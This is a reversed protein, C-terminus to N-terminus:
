AKDEVLLKPGDDKLFATIARNLAQAVTMNKKAALDSIQKYTAMPITILVMDVFPQLGTTDLDEAAEVAQPRMGM